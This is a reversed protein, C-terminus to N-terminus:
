VTATGSEPETFFRYIQRAPWEAASSPQWSGQAGEAIRVHATKSTDVKTLYWSNPASVTGAPTSRVYVFHTVADEEEHMIARDFTMGHASDAPIIADETDSGFALWRTGGTGDPHRFEPSAALLRQFESGRAMARCQADSYAPHTCIRTYETGAHPSGLTAAHRVCLSPPFDHYESENRKAFAGIAYRVIVGGMSHAVVDVCKGQTSYVDHIAWAWHFALHEIPTDAGHRGGHPHAAAGGKHLDHGHNPQDAPHEQSDAFSKSDDAFYAWPVSDTLGWSRWAVRAMSWSDYSSNPSFGPTHVPKGHVLMIPLPTAVDAPATPGTPTEQTEAARLCGALLVLVATLVM